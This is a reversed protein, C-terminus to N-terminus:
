ARRRLLRLSAAGAAALLAGAVALALAWMPGDGGPGAGGTAPMADPVSSAPNPGPQGPAPAPTTEAPAPAPTPQAAAVNIRGAMQGPHLSCDYEYTGAATFTFSFTEGSNLIGSDFAAGTVTHPVSGENTWLVTDGANISTPCVGDAFSPDCFWIDGAAINVTEQAHSRSGFGLAVAVLAVLPIGAAAPLLVARM